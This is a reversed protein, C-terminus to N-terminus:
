PGVHVIAKVELAVPVCRPKEVRECVLLRVNARAEGTGVKKAVLGYAWSQMTPDRGTVDAPGLRGKLATVFDPLEVLIVDAWAISKTAPARAEVTCKVRGPAAARECTMTASPEEAGAPSVALLL